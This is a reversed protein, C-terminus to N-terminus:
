FFIFFFIIIYTDFIGFTGFTCLLIFKRKHKHATKNEEEEADDYSDTAISLTWFEIITNSVRLTMNEFSTNNHSFASTNWIEYQIWKHPQKWIVSHHTLEKALLLNPVAFVWM